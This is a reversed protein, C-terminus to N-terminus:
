FFGVDGPCPRYFRDGGRRASLCFEYQQWVQVLEPDAAAIDGFSQLEWRGFDIERLREDYQVNEPRCGCRELEQLTQRTRVM